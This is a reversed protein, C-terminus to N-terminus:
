RIEVTRNPPDDDPAHGPRLLLGPVPGITAVDMRGGHGTVARNDSPRRGHQGSAVNRQDRADHHAREAEDEDKSGEIMDARDARRLSRSSPPRQRVEGDEGRPKSENWERRDKQIGEGPM